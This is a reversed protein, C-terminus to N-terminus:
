QTFQNTNFWTLVAEAWNAEVRIVDNTENGIAYREAGDETKNGIIMTVITAETINTEPRVKEVRFSVYPANQTTGFQEHRQDELPINLSEAGTISRRAFHGIAALIAERNAPQTGICPTGEIPLDCVVWDETEDSIAYAQTIENDEFLLMETVTAPDLEYWWDPLPPEDVLRRLVQGWSSDITVLQPFGDIQGYHAGGDPTEDGMRLTVSSRDRLGVSIVMKPDDLGYTSPDPVEELVVRQTRPGGLLTTIGGWRHLNTPIDQMDAFWWRRNAPDFEWTISDTETAISISRMDDSSLTYFFPPTNKEEEGAGSKVYWAAGVSAWSLIIVLVLSIRLNM